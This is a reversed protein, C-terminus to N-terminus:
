QADGNQPLFLMQEPVQVLQVALAGATLDPQPSPFQSTLAQVIGTEGAFNIVGLASQSRQASAIQTPTLWIAPDLVAGINSSNAGNVNPLYRLQIGNDEMGFVLGESPENFELRVPVDPYLGIMVTPALRDLRLPKMPNVPDAASWARVELGPWGSVVASRLLFGTMSGLAPPTTGPAVSRLQDRVQYLVANVASGLPERMLENLLSDRSTQIGVSLAGDILSDIWNQDIYFFRVSEVPLMGANPVLNNFPVSYLLSTRALWEVVQNPLISTRFRESDKVPVELGSLQKLLSVVSPVQMLAALDAPVVPPSTPPNPAEQKADCPTYGGPAGIAAAIRNSFETALFAEFANSLLNTDLLEALDEVGAGTLNGSAYVINEQTLVGELHPSRLYEMLLDVRAHAKRRWQLLNTAFPLCARALSRGTQFAVAYSQDFLGTTPDYIMAECSNYPTAPNAPSTVAPTQLFQQTIVPSLPGRYWAFTQEGTRTAYSLPVYGNGLRARRPRNRLRPLTPALRRPCALFCVPAM